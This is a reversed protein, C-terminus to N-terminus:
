LGQSTSELVLAGSWRSPMNCLIYMIFNQVVLLLSSINPSIIGTVLAFLFVVIILHMHLYLFYLKGKPFVFDGSGKAGGVM